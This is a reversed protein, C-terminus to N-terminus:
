NESTRYTAALLNKKLKFWLLSYGALEMLFFVQIVACGCDLFSERTWTIFVDFWIGVQDKEKVAFCIFTHQKKKIILAKSRMKGLAAPLGGGSRM